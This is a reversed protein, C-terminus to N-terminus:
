HIHPIYPFKTLLINVLYKKPEQLCSKRATSGRQDGNPNYLFINIKVHKQIGYNKSKVILWSIVVGMLILLRHGLSKSKAWPQAGNQLQFSKIFIQANKSSLINTSINKIEHLYPKRGYQHTDHVWM